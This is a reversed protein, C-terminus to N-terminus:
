RTEGRDLSSCIVVRHSVLSRNTTDRASDMGSGSKDTSRTVARLRKMPEVSGREETLRSPDEGRVSRNCHPSVAIGYQVVRQM